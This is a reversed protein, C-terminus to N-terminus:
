TPASRSAAKRLKELDTDRAVCHLNFKVTSWDRSFNTIQGLQGFPITHVPGNQHRLKISRLTFGEVTGKAKGATSTSASASPM